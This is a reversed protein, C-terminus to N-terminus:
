KDNEKDSKHKHKDRKERKWMQVRDIITEVIIITMVLLCYFFCLCCLVTMAIEFFGM